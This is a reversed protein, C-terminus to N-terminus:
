KMRATIWCKFEGQKKEAAIRAREAMAERQKAQIDVKRKKFNERVLHSEKMAENILTRKEEDSKSEIWDETKNATFVIYAESTLISINPNKRLLNDLYGFVSESFKNHKQVSMAKMRMDTTDAYWKGGPLHDAYM